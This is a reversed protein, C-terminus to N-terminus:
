GPGYKMMVAWIEDGRGPDSDPIVVLGPDLLILHNQIGANAPIVLYPSKTFLGM